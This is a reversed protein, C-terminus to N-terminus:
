ESMMSVRVNCLLQGTVSWHMTSADIILAMITVPGLVVTIGDSCVNDMAISIQCSFSNDALHEEDLQTMCIVALM